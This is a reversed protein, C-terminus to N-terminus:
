PLKTPMTHTESSKASESNENTATIKYYYTVGLQVTDDVYATGTAVAIPVLGEGGPTTSRYINYGTAGASTSWTLGISKSRPRAIFNAPPTLSVFFAQQSFVVGYHEGSFTTGILRGAANLLTGAPNEGDSATSGDHFNHLVDFAGNPSLAFITGEDASGGHSTTGYLVGGSGVTLEGPFKGDNKVEGDFNHVIAYRGSKGIKFVVGNGGVGGGVTAGYYYGDAGQVLSTRATGGDNPVSGDSFNHLITYAGAKTLRFVVGLGATGGSATTGYLSGDSGEFVSGIPDYGDLPTAGFSFSHLVTLSGGLTLRYVWGFGASGGSTTAGYLNGDRGSILGCQPFAGDAFQFQHVVSFEGATTIKFVAGYNLSGGSITTGYLAGDAGVVLSGYPNGGDFPVSGDAFTWITSTSGTSSSVRYITGSGATGGNRTTGYYNGDPGLVLGGNPNAGDASSAFDHVIYYL